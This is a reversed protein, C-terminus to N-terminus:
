VYPTAPLTLHKYSVAGQNGLALVKGRIVDSFYVNNPTVALSEPNTSIGFDGLYPTMDGVVSNSSILQPNGDANYLADKNTVGRM